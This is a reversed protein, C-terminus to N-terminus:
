MWGFLKNPRWSGCKRTKRLSTPRFSGPRFALFVKSLAASPGVSVRAVNRWASTRSASDTAAYFDSELRGVGDVRRTGVGDVRCQSQGTPTRVPPGRLLSRMLGDRLEHVADRARRGRGIIIMPGLQEVRPVRFPREARM